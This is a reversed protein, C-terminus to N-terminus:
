KLWEFLYEDKYDIKNRTLFEKYEDQFTQKKQHEKQRNIYSIVNDLAYHSYSFAGAM